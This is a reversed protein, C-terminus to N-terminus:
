PAQPECPTAYCLSVRRRVHLTAGDM